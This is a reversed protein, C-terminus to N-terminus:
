LVRGHHNIFSQLCWSGCLHQKKQVDQAMNVEDKRANRKTLLFESSFVAVHLVTRPPMTTGDVCVLDVCNLVSWGFWKYETAVGSGSACLRCCRQDDLLTALPKTAMPTSLIQFLRSISTGMDLVSGKQQWLSPSVRPVSGHVLWPLQSRLFACNTGKRNSFKSPPLFITFQDANVSDPICPASRLIDCTKRVLLSWLHPSLKLELTAQLQTAFLMNYIYSMIYCWTVVYVIPEDLENRHTYCKTAHHMMRTWCQGNSGSSPHPRDLGAAQHRLSAHILQYWTSWNRGHLKISALLIARKAPWHEVQSTHLHQMM